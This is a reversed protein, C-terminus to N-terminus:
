IRNFYNSNSINCKDKIECRHIKMRKDGRNRDVNKGGSEVSEREKGRKTKREGIERMQGRKM